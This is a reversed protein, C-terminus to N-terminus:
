RRAQVVALGKLLDLARALSPDTVVPKPPFAAETEDGAEMELSVGERQMRVLEAENLRRRAARSALLGEANQAASQALVKPVAKYPDELYARDEAPDVEVLIDPALGTAPLPRGDPLQVTGVAVRLRQGTSLPFDRFVAASGATPSGVVLGIDAQRFIATIAEAAGKTERNSLLVVPVPIANEKTKSEFVSNEWKLLPRNGPLFQDAVAAAAAYDYGGAFRLDLVLGKLQNTTNLRGYAERVEKGVGEQVRNIRIYGYSQDFHATAGLIPGSSQAESEGSVLVVRGKLVDLLGQVAARNLEAETTQTLNSRLLGYVEQFPAMAEAAFGTGPGSIVAALLVIAKSFTRRM